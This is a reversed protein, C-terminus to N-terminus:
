ARMCVLQDSNVYICFDVILSTDFDYSVFPNVSNLYLFKCIYYNCNFDVIPYHYIYM